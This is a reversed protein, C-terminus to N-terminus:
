SSTNVYRHAVQCQFPEGELYVERPAGEPRNPGRAAADRVADFFRLITPFQVEGFPVDVFFEAGGAELGDALDGDLVPVRVEIPGDSDWSVEGHYVVTLPKGRNINVGARQVLVAAAGEIQAPLDAATTRIVRAVFACPAVDRRKVVPMDTVPHVNPLGGALGDLLAIARQHTRTMEVRYTEILTRRQAPAADLVAGIHDLPMGVRRLLAITRAREVQTPGYYRYGTYADVLEPLLLGRREYLRLAKPSLWTLRSFEGITLRESGNM